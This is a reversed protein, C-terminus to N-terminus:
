KKSIVESLINKLQVCRFIRSDQSRLSKYAHRITQTQIIEYAM